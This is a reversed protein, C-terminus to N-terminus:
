CLTRLLRLARARVAALTTTEAILADVEKTFDKEQKKPDAMNYTNRTHSPSHLSSTATRVTSQRTANLGESGKRGYRTAGGCETVHLAPAREPISAGFQFRIAPVDVPLAPRPDTKWERTAGSAM